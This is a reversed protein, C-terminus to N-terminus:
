TFKVRDSDAQGGANTSRLDSEPIRWEGGGDTGTKEAGPFRGDACWTAVTSPKVGRLEAVDATTYWRCGADAGDPAAELDERLWTRLTSRPLTVSAGEPLTDVLERVHDRLTM